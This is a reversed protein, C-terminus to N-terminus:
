LLILFCVVVVVVVVFCVFFADEKDGLRWAKLPKINELPTTDPCWGTYRGVLLQMSDVVVSPAGGVLPPLPM